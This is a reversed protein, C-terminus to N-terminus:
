NIALITFDQKKAKKRPWYRSSANNYGSYSISYYLIIESDM